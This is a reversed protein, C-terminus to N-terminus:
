AHCEFTLMGFDTQLYGRLHSKIDHVRWSTETSKNTHDRGDFIGLKKTYKNSYIYMDLQNYFLLTLTTVHM